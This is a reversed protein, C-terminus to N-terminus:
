NSQEMIKPFVASLKLRVYRAAACARIVRRSPCPFDLRQNFSLGRIPQASQDAGIANGAMM